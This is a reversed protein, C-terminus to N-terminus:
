IILKPSNQIFSSHVNMFLDKHTCLDENGKPLYKVFTTTPDYLFICKVTFSIALSNELDAAADQM